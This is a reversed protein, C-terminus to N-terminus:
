LSNRIKNKDIKGNTNKPIYSVFEITTPIKYKALQESLYEKIDSENLKSKEAVRIQAYVEEGFLKNKKGIVACELVQPHSNIANEVEISYIKEGGRNIMDKVRDLIYVFGENDICAIDGTNFWGNVITKESELNLNYYKEIVCSGKIELQGVTNNSLEKGHQSEVIRLQIGPIAKGSSGEYITGLPDFPMITAPSTTETLGYVPYMRFDKNHSRIKKIISVPMNASGCAGKMLSQIPENDELEETIMLFITPSAHIFTINHCKICDITKRADFNKYLYSTGGIKLFLCLLAVLGTIHFIPTSIVTSDSSDLVLLKEYSLISHLVNFNNILAGKPKGTTGSTYILVAGDGHSTEYEDVLHFNEDSMLSSMKQYKSKTKNEKSDVFEVVNDTLIINCIQTSQIVSELQIVWAPDIIILKASSNKLPYLIEQAKLKTSLPMAIAGIKIISYFAVCFDISNVVMLACVDGKNIQYSDTLCSAFRNVKDEFESYTVADNEDVIALKSPYKHASEVLTSFISNPLDAYSDYERGNIYYRNMEITNYSSKEIM